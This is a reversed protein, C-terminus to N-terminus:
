DLACIPLVEIGCCWMVESSCQSQSWVVLDHNMDLVHLHLHTTCKLKCDIIDVM